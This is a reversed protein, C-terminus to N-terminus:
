YGRRRMRRNVSKRDAVVDAVLRGYSRGVPKITVTRGGVMGRLTATARRGGTAYREPANVNALRIRNSNGIRRAVRFSDGDDITTVKRRFSKM